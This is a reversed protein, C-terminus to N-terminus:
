AFAIPSFSCGRAYNVTNTSRPPAQPAPRFSVVVLPMITRTERLLAATVPTSNAVIVDPQLAVLEKAYIRARDVSGAAWRVDMRLNRGDTWGLESLGRAFRSLYAKAEPDSESYAMLVSVRRVGQQAGAAFSLAAASGLGAIFERRNM